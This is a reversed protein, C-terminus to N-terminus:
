DGTPAIRFAVVSPLAGLTQALRQANRAHLTRIVMRYEFFRGEGTLRYSLSGITFGQEAILARLDPESM